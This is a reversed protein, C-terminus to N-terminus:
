HNKFTQRLGVHNLVSIGSIFYLSLLTMLSIMVLEDGGTILSFKLIIAVLVLAAIIKEAITM